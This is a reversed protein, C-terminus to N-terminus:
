TTADRNIPDVLVVGDDTVTVLSFHFSNQFRFVDGAVRTIERKGQQGYGSTAAFLALALAIMGALLKMLQRM